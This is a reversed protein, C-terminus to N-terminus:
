KRGEPIEIFKRYQGINDKRLFQVHEGLKVNDQVFKPIITQM